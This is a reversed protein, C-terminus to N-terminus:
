IIGHVKTFAFVTVNEILHTGYVFTTVDRDVLVVFGGGIQM